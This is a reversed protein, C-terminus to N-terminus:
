EEPILARLLETRWAGAERDYIGFGAGFEWYSWSFGRAEASERMFTTWRVRSAMDAKSYAGFEGFWLPIGRTESWALAKDLATTMPQPGSPNINAPNQNYRMFWSRVWDVAKAEPVLELKTEPPGPWLVGVTGYEASVWEAGQHTFLFPDYNHFTCIFNMENEPIRLAELADIGGWGAGSFVLTHETDIARVAAIAKALMPNWLDSTLRDHPENLLEFYVRDPLGQYREAIQEWIAIFRAEHAGPETFLEEYHHMNIVVNLGQALGNEIVWDVREFFTVDVTYPAGELAHASWRIPVRITDFGAEAILGFYAEEIVMGWAGEKPAELANGLNVGRGLRAAQEMAHANNMPTPMPTLTPRPPLTPWPTKTPASEPMAELSPTAQCGVFFLNLVVLLGVLYRM